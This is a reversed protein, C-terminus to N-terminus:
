LEIVYTSYDDGNSVYLFWPVAVNLLKGLTVYGLVFNGSVRSKLM